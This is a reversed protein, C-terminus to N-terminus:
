ARGTQGFPPAGRSRGYRVGGTDGARGEGVAEDRVVVQVRQGLVDARADSGDASFIVSRRTATMTPAGIVQGSIRM